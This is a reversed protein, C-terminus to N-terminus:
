LSRGDLPSLVRRMRIVLRRLAVGVCVRLGARGWDDEFGGEAADSKFDSESDGAKWLEKTEKVEDGTQRRYYLNEVESELAAIWRWGASCMIVRRTSEVVSKRSTTERM